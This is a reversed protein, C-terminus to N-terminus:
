FAGWRPCSRHLDGGPTGRWYGHVCRRKDIKRGNKRSYKEVVADLKKLIDATKM